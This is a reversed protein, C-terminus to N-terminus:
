FSNKTKSLRLVGYEADTKFFLLRGLRNNQLSGLMGQPQTYYVANQKTQVPNVNASNDQKVKQTSTQKKVDPKTDQKTVSKTVGKNVTSFNYKTLEDSIEMKDPLINVNFVKRCSHCMIANESVGNDRGLRASDEFTLTTGCNPCNSQLKMLSKLLDVGNGVVM